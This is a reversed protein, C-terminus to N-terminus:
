DDLQELARRIIDLAANTEDGFEDTDWLVDIKALEALAQEKLSLPKPRLYNYMETVDEEEWAACKELYKGCALLEQDAGWAAARNAIHIEYLWSREDYDTENAWKQVLERAPVIKNTDVFQDTM